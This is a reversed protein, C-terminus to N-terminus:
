ICDTVKTIMRKMKETRSDGQRSVIGMGVTVEVSRGLLPIELVVMRKHRLVKKLKGRCEKMAGSTVVLKEGEIYGESYRVIHERGGIMRLYQEEEPYIPIMEKDTRLIKAMSGLRKLRNYFDEIRETEVFVYGPFLKGMTLSWRGRIKIMKEAQLIFIEEGDEMLRSRCQECIETETGTYVQVVYWM